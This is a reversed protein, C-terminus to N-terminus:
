REYVSVELILNRDITIQYQTHNLFVGAIAKCCTMDQLCRKQGQQLLKQFSVPFQKIEAQSLEPLALRFIRNKIYGTGTWQKQDPTAQAKIIMDKM